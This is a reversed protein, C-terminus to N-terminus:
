YKLTKETVNIFGKAELWGKLHVAVDFSKGTRNGAEVMFQAWKYLHHEPTLSGDDARYPLVCEM